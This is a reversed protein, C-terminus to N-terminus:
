WFKWWKKEDDINKKEENIKSYLSDFKSAIELYEKGWGNSISLEQYTGTPLFEVKIKELTEYNCFRIKEIDLIIEAKLIEPNDFGAWVTDTESNIKDKVRELLESIKKFIGYDEIKSMFIKYTEEDCVEKLDRLSNTSYEKSCLKGNILKIDQLKNTIVSWIRDIQNEFVEIDPKSNLRVLADVDGGYKEYVILQKKNIFNKM